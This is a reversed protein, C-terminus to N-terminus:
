SVSRSKWTAVFGVKFGPLFIDTARIGNAVIYNGLQLYYCSENCNADVM